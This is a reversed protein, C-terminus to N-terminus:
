NVDPVDLYWKGDVKIFGVDGYGYKVTAKEGDVTIDKIEFLKSSQGRKLGPGFAKVCSISGLWDELQSPVFLSCFGKVNKQTTYTALKNAVVRVAAEDGPSSSNSSVSNDSSPDNGASDGSGCGVGAFGITAICLLAALRRLKM